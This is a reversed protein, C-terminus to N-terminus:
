SQITDARHQTLRPVLGRDRAPRPVLSRDRRHRALGKHAKTSAQREHNAQFGANTQIGDALITRKDDNASLAIKNIKETFLNRQHSRIVNVTRLQQRGSFLCAKSDEFIIRNRVVNKKIGKCKKEEEGEDMKIAYTKPRLGVFEAIVKGGAEDKMM